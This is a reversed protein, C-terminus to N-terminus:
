HLLFNLSSTSQLQILLAVVEDQVHKLCWLLLPMHNRKIHMQNTMKAVRRQLMVVLM